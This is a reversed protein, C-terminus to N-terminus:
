QNEGILVDVGKVADCLHFAIAEEPTFYHDYGTAKEIEEESKGTHKALIRNIRRKTEQMSESISRISSCNGGVRNGLLPEHLMLESSPLMFRGGTGAAFLIAAMSYAHGLCFTRIPVGCTQITDYILMGAGIEGGPSNILVDIPATRNEKALLLVRKIFRCAMEGNVEGELFIKRDALLRSDIPMATIGNSSKVQIMVTEKRKEDHSRGCLVGGPCVDTIDNTLRGKKLPSAKTEKM